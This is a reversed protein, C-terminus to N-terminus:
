TFDVDFNNEVQRGDATLTLELGDMEPVSFKISWTGNANKEEKIGSITIKGDKSVASAKVSSPSSGEFAITFNANWDPDIDQGQLKAVLRPLVKATTTAGPVPAGENL